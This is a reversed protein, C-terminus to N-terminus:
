VLDDIITMIQNGKRSKKADVLVVKGGPRAFHQPRVQPQWQEHASHVEVIRPM